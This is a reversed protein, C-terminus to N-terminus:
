VIAKLVREVEGIDKKFDQCAKRESSGKFGQGRSGKDTFAMFKDINNM